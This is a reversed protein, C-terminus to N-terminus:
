YIKERSLVFTPVCSSGFCVTDRSEHWSIHYRRGVEMTYNKGDYCQVPSHMIQFNFLGMEEMEKDTFKDRILCGEEVTPPFWGKKKAYNRIFANNIDTGKNDSFVKKDEPFISRRIGVMHTLIGKTPVFNSLAIISQGLRSFEVNQQSFLDLWEKPTRGNSIVSFYLFGDKEKCKSTDNIIFEGRLFAMAGEEGGLKKVIANLQGGTLNKMAFEYNMIGGQALKGKKQGKM